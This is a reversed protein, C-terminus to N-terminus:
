QERRAQNGAASAARREALERETAYQPALNLHAVKTIPGSTAATQALEKRAMRSFDPEDTM